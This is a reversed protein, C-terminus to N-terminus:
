RNSVIDDATFFHGDPGASMVTFVDRRGEVRLICLVYRTGWPDESKNDNM